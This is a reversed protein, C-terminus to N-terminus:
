IFRRFLNERCKVNELNLRDRLMKIMQDLHELILNLKSIWSQLLWFKIWEIESNTVSSSIETNVNSPNPLSFYWLKTMMNYGTCVPFMSIVWFTVMHQATSEPANWNADLFDWRLHPLNASWTWIKM